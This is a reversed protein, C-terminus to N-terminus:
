KINVPMHSLALLPLVNIEILTTTKRRARNTSPLLLSLHWYCYPVMFLLAIVHIIVCEHVDPNESTFLVQHLMIRKSLLLQVNTSNNIREAYNM